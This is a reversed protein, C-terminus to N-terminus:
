CASRCAIYDALCNSGGGNLCSIYDQRCALFCGSGGNISSQETKNLSKVDNRNLINKLM